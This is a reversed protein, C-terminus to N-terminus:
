GQENVRAQADIESINFINDQFLALQERTQLRVPLLLTLNPAALASVAHILPRAVVLKIQFNTVLLEPIINPITKITDFIIIPDPLIGSGVGGVFFLPGLEIARLAQDEFEAEPRVTRTSQLIPVASNFNLLSSHIQFSHHQPDLLISLRTLHVLLILCIQYLLRIHNFYSSRCFLDFLPRIRVVPM